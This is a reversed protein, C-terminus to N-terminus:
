MSKCGIKLKGLKKFQERTEANVEEIILRAKYRDINSKCLIKGECTGRTGIKSRRGFINKMNVPAKTLM